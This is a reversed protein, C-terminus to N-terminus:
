VEAAFTGKSAKEKRQWMTYVHVAPDRRSFDSVDTPMSSGANAPVSAATGGYSVASLPVIESTLVGKLALDALTAYEARPGQAVLTIPTAANMAAVARFLGP